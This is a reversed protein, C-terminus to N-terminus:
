GSIVASTSQAYFVLNSSSSDNGKVGACYPCYVTRVDKLSNSSCPLICLFLLCSFAAHHQGTISGASSVRDKTTNVEGGPGGSNSNSHSLAVNNSPVTKVRHYRRVRDNSPERPPHPTVLHSHSVGAVLHPHTLAMSVQLMHLWTLSLSLQFMPTCPACVCLCMCECM